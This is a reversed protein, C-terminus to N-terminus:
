IRKREKGSRNRNSAKKGYYDGRKHIRKALFTESTMMM